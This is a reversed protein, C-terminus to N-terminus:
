ASVCLVQVHVFDERWSTFRGTSVVLTTRDIAHTTMVAGVIPDPEFGMQSVSTDTDKVKECIYYAASFTGRQHFYDMQLNSPNVRNCGGSCSFFTKPSDGTQIHISPHAGQYCRFSLIKNM